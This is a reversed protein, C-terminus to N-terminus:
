QCKRHKKTLRTEGGRMRASSAFAQITRLNPTCHNFIHTTSHFFSLISIFVRTEVSNAACLANMLILGASHIHTRFTLLFAVFLFIRSCRRASDIGCARVGSCVCRECRGRRRQVYVARICTNHGFIILQSHTHTCQNRKKM